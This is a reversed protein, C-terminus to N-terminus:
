KGAEAFLLGTLAKAITMTNTTEINSLVIVTADDDPYRVLMAAFGNIGGGHWICKRNETQDVFWGYAYNSKVPTFMRDLSPKKLLTTTYLARDWRYLDEVTSYLAGAAHPISMDIYNSNVFSNLRRTYGSARDKIIKRTDDYGTGAM